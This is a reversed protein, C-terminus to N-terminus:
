TRPCWLIGAFKPIVLAFLPAKWVLIKSKKQSKKTAGWFRLKKDGGMIKIKKAKIELKRWCGCIINSVWFQNRRVGLGM